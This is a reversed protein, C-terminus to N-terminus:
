GVELGTRSGANESSSAARKMGFGLALLGEDLWWENFSHLEWFQKSTWEDVSHLLGLSLQIPMFWTVIVQTVGTVTVEGHWLISALTGKSALVGV